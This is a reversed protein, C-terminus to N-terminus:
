WSKKEKWIIFDDLISKRYLKARMEMGRFLQRKLITNNVAIMPLQVSKLIWDETGSFTEISYSM